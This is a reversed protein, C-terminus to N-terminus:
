HGDLPLEEGQVAPRHLPLLEYEGVGPLRRLQQQGLRPGRQQQAAQGRPLAERFFNKCNVGAFLIIDGIWVCRPIKGHGEGVDAARGGGGAPSSKGPEAKEAHILPRRSRPASPGAQIPIKHFSMARAARIM